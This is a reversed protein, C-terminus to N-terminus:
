RINTKEMIQVIKSVEKILDELRKTKLLGKPRSISELGTIISEAEEIHEFILVPVKMSKAM